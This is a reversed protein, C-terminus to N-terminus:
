EMIADSGEASQWLKKAATGFNGLQYVALGVPKFSVSQFPEAKLGKVFGESAVGATVHPWFKDGSANPVFQEVYNITEANVDSGVFAAASGEGISYAALADLVHQHLSDLEPTRQVAIATVAVGGWIAYELGKSKLQMEQLRESAVIRSLTANIADLDKVHVFRQALTVHPAHTADLSYGDPYNQRLRANIANSQAVMAQDPQLLVDIAIIENDTPVAKGESAHIPSAALLCGIALIVASLIAKM